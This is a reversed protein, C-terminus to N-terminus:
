QHHKGVSIPSPSGVQTSRPRLLKFGQVDPRAAFYGSLPEERVAPKSSHLIMVRGSQDHVILGVHGVFPRESAGRVIEIVDAECFHPLAAPLHERAVYFDDFIQVPVEHPVGFGSLFKKRDIRLRMPKAPVGPLRDTVDEFLWANAVNWDAETFHNRTRIGIVGDQYRLRQLTRFFGPWDSSLAMAYTQEVFTVCDSAGLCYLPDPDHLEFPHEGLVFLKYPQGISKRALLTVRQPLSLDRASLWKLYSDVDRESFGHLPTQQLTALDRVRTAPQCAGMSFHLMVVSVGWRMRRAVDSTSGRQDFM